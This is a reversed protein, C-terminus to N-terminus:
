IEKAQFDPNDNLLKEMEVLHLLGTQTGMKSVVSASNIAGWKMAEAAPLGKMTAAMFGGAYADGAGTRQVVPLEFIGIEYYKDGDYSYSGRKGDTIVVVKPGLDRIMFLLKKIKEKENEPGLTQQTMKEGEEKNMLVIQSVSLLSSYTEIASRLQVGSPAFILKVQRTRTLDALEGFFKQYHPGVSSVYLWNAQPFNPPLEYHYDVAYELITREGQFNLITSYRSEGHPVVKVLDRKIDEKALAQDIREGIQDDGHITFIATEFGLRTLGAVNNAANGGLSRHISDVPIKEGYKLCLECDERNIKSHVVAEHIFLNVDFVCDGISICDYM